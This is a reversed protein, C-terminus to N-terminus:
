PQLKWLPVTTQKPRRLRSAESPGFCRMEGRKTYLALAKAPSASANQSSLPRTLHQRM